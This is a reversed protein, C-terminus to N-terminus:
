SDGAPSPVDAEDFPRATAIKMDRPASVIVEREDTRKEVGALLRVIRLRV